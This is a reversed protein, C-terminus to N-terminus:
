GGCAVYVGEIQLEQTSNTMSLEMEHFWEPSGSNMVVPTKKMVSGLKVMVYPDSQGGNGADANPLDLARRVCLLVKKVPFPESM